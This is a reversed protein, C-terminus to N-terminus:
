SIGRGHRWDKAPCKVPVFNGGVYSRSKRGWRKMETWHFVGQRRFIDVRKREVLNELLYRFAICVTVKPTLQTEIGVLSCPFLIRFFFLYRCYACLVFSAIGWPTVSITYVSVTKETTNRHWWAVVSFTWVCQCNGHIHSFGWTWFLGHFWRKSGVTEPVKRGKKWKGRPKCLCYLTVSPCTISPFPVIINKLLLCQVFNLTWYPCAVM